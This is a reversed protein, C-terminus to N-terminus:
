ACHLKLGTTDSFACGQVNVRTVYRSIGNEQEFDQNSWSGTQEDIGQFNQNSDPM